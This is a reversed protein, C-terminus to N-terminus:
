FMSHETYLQVPMWEPLRMRLYPNDTLLMAMIATLLWVPMPFPIGAQTRMQGFAVRAQGYGSAEFIM